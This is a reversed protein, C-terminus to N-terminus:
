KRSSRQNKLFFLCSSKWFASWIYSVQIAQRLVAVLLLAMYYIQISMCKITTLVFWNFHSEVTRDVPERSGSVDVWGECLMIFSDSEIYEPSWLTSSNRSKLLTVPLSYLHSWQWIMKSSQVRYRRCLPKWEWSLSGKLHTMQLVEQRSRISNLQWKVLWM